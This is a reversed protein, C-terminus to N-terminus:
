FAAIYQGRDRVSFDLLGVRGAGLPLQGVASRGAIGGEGQLWGSILVDRTAYRVATQVSAGSTAEYASSSAFFGFTHAPMGYGLPQSPAVEMRLISGPCHF